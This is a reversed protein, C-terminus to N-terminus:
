GKGELMGADKCYSFFLDYKWTSKKIGPIDASLADTRKPLKGTKRYRENWWNALNNAIEVQEDLSFMPRAAIRADVIENNDTKCIRVKIRSQGINSGRHIRLGISTM